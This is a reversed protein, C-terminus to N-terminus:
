LLSPPNGTEKEIKGLDHFYCDNYLHGYIPVVSAIQLYASILDFVDGFDDFYKSISPSVAHIGSFAYQYFVPKSNEVKKTEGTKTNIWGCLKMDEDFRLYRSSKRDSVVLHAIGYPFNPLKEIFSKLDFNTDIDVNHVIVTKDDNLTKIAKKLGGGTNLLKGTEDSILLEPHNIHLYDILKDAFHHANVITKDLYVNQCRQLIWEIMPKGSVEVLAKPKDATLPLLRTGLGATPVFLNVRMDASNVTSQGDDATIESDHVISQKNVM